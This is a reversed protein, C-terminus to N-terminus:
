RGRSGAPPNGPPPPSPLASETPPPPPLPPPPAGLTGSPLGEAPPPVPAGPNARRSRNGLRAQNDPPTDDPCVLGPSPVEGRGRRRNQDACEELTGLRGSSMLAGSDTRHERPSPEVDAVAGSGLIITLASAWMSWRFRWTWRSQM